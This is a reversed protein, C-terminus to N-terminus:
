QDLQVVSEALDDSGGPCRLECCEEDNALVEM